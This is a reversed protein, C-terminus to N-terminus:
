IYACASDCAIGVPVRPMLVCGLHWSWVYPVLAWLPNTGRPGWSTLLPTLIPTVEAPRCFGHEKWKMRKTYEIVTECGCWIETWWSCVLSEPLRVTSLLVLYNVATTNLAVEPWFYALNTGLFGVWSVHGGRSVPCLQSRWVGSFVLHMKYRSPRSYSSFCSSNIELPMNQSARILSTFWEVFCEGRMSSVTGHNSYITLHLDLDHNNAPSSIIGLDTM